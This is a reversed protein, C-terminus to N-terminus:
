SRSLSPGAHFAAEIRMSLVGPAGRESNHLARESGENPRVIDVTRDMEFRFQAYQSPNSQDNVIRRLVLTGKGANDARGHLVIM